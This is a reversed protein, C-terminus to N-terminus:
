ALPKHLPRIIGQKVIVRPKTADQFSSKTQWERGKPLRLSREYQERTEFPFPLADALYKKNGKITKQSVIVRELKADKRKSQETGPKHTVTKFGKNKQKGKRSMGEGAWSGWGPLVDIKDEPAEEDAMAQKEKAFEELTDQDGAFGRLVLDEAEVGDSEENSDDDHAYSVTQFGDEDPASLIPESSADASKKSKANAKPQAKPVAVIQADWATNPEIVANTTSKPAKGLFPNLADVQPAADQKTKSKKPQANGLFPNPANSRGQRTSSTSRKHNSTDPVPNGSDVESVDEGDSNAREEFESRSPQIAPIAPTTGPGFKKRGMRASEEGEEESQSDEGALERRMREIDEDNRARQAAEAKQMFAMAGLKSQKSSFPNDALRDLQQQVYDTKEEDDDDEGESSLDSRDEDEDHIEKGEMRRRLEENRRAMDNVGDRADDDWAARGSAKIGKAWKSERHKAGMREEARRRDNYEKEDESIDIGEAKLADRERQLLREREKRHVRRYAKSKIKKVRKARVEERFLLERQKRLETRRKAAEELSMKNTQLEEWKQIQDEDEKGNSLGSEQLISQIAAELDNAPAATTTPMLRAEGEAPGVSDPHQMPFFLHEAQRNQKVTDVWRGLTENTKENAAARDLKDQQRKPLPAHLKKSMDNRKSPKDDDQLLKLAKKREPDSTKPKFNALDVKRMVGFESPAGFEHVDVKRKAKTKEQEDEPLSSILNQLQSLKEPDDLDDDDDSSFGSFGGDRIDDDESSESENRAKSKKSKTPKEQEEESSEYQDLATALDIADDGLDDEDDEGDESHDEDLNIDADEDDSYGRKSKKQAGKKTTSSGRFTWGEFKEEDSEGFAEDSDIDSDDDDEVHGMTWNNGESDSGEDFSLDGDGRKQRQRRPEEEEDSDEGEEDDEQRARKRHSPGELEGARTRSLKVRDPFEQSAIAFADLARKAAKKPARTASPQIKPPRQNKVSSRSVRPPM